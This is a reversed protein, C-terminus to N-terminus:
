SMFIVKLPKMNEHSLFLLTNNAGATIEFIIIFDLFGLVECTEFIIIGMSGAPSKMNIQIKTNIRLKCTMFM